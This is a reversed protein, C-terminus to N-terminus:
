IMKLLATDQKDPLKKRKQRASKRPLRLWSRGHFLRVEKIYTLNEPLKKSGEVDDAGEGTEGSVGVAGPTVALPDTEAAKSIRGSSSIYDSAPCVFSLVFILSLAILRVTKKNFFIKM